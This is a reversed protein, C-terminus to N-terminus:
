TPAVGEGLYDAGGGGRVGGGLPPPFLVPVRGRDLSRPRKRKSRQSTRNPLRQPFFSHHVGADGGGAGHVRRVISLGELVVSGGTVDSGVFDTSRVPRM